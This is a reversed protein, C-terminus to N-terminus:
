VLAANFAAVFDTTPDGMQTTSYVDLNSRGQTQQGGTLGQAADVRLRNGLSTLIGAVVSEDSTLQAVIEILTDYASSVGGLIDNKVQLIAATTKSASWSKTLSTTSTDDITSGASTKVENIAAVLTSKDTTTLAALSGTLAYVTKFETGVRTVLNSLQSALSM